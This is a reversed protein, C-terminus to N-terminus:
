CFPKKNFLVKVPYKGLKIEPTTYCCLDDSSVPKKQDHLFNGFSSDVNTQKYRVKAM